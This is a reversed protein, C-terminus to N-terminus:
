YDQGHHREADDQYPSIPLSVQEPGEPRQIEVGEQDAILLYIGLPFVYGARCEEECPLHADHRRVNGVANDATIDDILM